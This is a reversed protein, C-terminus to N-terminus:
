ICYRWQNDLWVQNKAMLSWLAANLEKETVKNEETCIKNKLDAFNLPKPKLEDLIRGKINKIGSLSSFNSMKVRVAKEIITTVQDVIFETILNKVNV